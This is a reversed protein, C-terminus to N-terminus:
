DLANCLLPVYTSGRCDNVSQYLAFSEILGSCAPPSFEQRSRCHRALTVHPWFRRTELPYGAAFLEEQLQQALALLPEPPSTPELSLLGRRNITLRDLTLIFKATRVRAAICSLEPVRDEPQDGLFALTLHLNAAPVPKGNLALGDRWASITQAQHQPLPIAFFLRLNM